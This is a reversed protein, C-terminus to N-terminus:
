NELCVEFHFHIDFNNVGLIKTSFQFIKSLMLNRELYYLSLPQNIEIFILHNNFELEPSFDINLEDADFYIEQVHTNLEIFKGLSDLSEREYVSSHTLYFLKCDLIVSKLTKNSWVGDNLFVNLAKSSIKEM